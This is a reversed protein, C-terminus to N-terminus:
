NRLRCLKSGECKYLHSPLALRVPEHRRTGVELPTSRRFPKVRLEAWAAYHLVDLAEPATEDLMKRHEAEWASLEDPALLAGVGRCAKMRGHWTERTFPVSLRFEDHGVVDFADKYGDPIEIPQVTAGAGSWRPSYKLVLAESRGAIEDEYPLWEMCLVLLRGNPKLLRALRTAIQEHRFYWFCQCATIVDFSAPPFDMEEVSAVRYDIKLGTSLRKAQAIQEASIDVGTWDGGFAYLNRPLVGTGTGLDLIRQGDRCLGRDLIARYFAPPYIDLYKAYDSSVRGWDFAKGGDLSKISQEKM